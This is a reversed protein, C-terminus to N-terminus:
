AHLGVVGERAHQILSRVPRRPQEALAGEVLDPCVRLVQRSPAVAALDIQQQDHSALFGTLDRGHQIPAGPDHDCQVVRDTISRDARDSRKHLLQEPVRLLVRHLRVQAPEDHGGFALDANKQPEALEPPKLKERRM